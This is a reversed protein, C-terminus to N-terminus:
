VVSKRDRDCLGSKTLYVSGEGRGRAMRGEGSYGNTYGYQLPYPPYPRGRRGAPGPNKTTLATNENTGGTPSSGVVKPNFTGIGSGRHAAPASGAVGTVGANGKLVPTSPGMAGAGASAAQDGHDWRDAGGAPGM